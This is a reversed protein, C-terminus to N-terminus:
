WDCDKQMPKGIPEKKSTLRNTCLKDVFWHFEEDSAVASTSKSEKLGKNKRNSARKM